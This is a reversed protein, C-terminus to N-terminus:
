VYQEGERCVSEEFEKWKDFTWILVENNRASLHEVSMDYVENMNEKTVYIENGLADLITCNIYECAQIVDLVKLKSM